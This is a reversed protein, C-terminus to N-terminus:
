GPPSGAKALAVAPLCAVKEPREPLVGDLRERDVVLVALPVVFARFLERQLQELIRFLAADAHGRVRRLM